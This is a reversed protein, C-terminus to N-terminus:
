YFTDFDSDENRYSLQNATRQWHLYGLAKGDEVCCSLNKGEVFPQMPPWAAVHIEEGLSYTHYRLLPQTHEWCTLGGVKGVGPVDVVNQLSSGSGEGFITREMHTPKIKRRTIKIEGDAGILAQAIYLSQNDRETFGLSVAIDNEKAVSQIHRMEPSNIQLSAAIYRNVMDADVPRARFAILNNDM